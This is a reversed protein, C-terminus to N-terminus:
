RVQRGGRGGSSVLEEAYLSTNVLHFRAAVDALYFQMGRVCHLSRATRSTVVVATVVALVQRAVLVVLVGDVYASRHFVGDVIETSGDNESVWSWRLVVSTERQDDLAVRNTM